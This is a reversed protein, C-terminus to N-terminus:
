DKKMINSIIVISLVQLRRMQLGSPVSEKSENWGFSLHERQTTQGVPLEPDCMLRTVSQTTETRSSAECEDVGLRRALISDCKFLAKTYEGGHRSGSSETNICFGLGCVNDGWM